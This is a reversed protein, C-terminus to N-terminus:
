PGAAIPTDPLQAPDTGAGEGASGTLDTPRLLFSNLMPNLRYILLSQLGYQLHPEDSPVFIVSRADVIRWGASDRMREVRARLDHTEGVYLVHSSNSLVYVGGRDLTSSDGGGLPIPEPLARQFWKAFKTTALEKAKNARKRVSLAAWRYEFSTHGPAFQRAVADFVTAIEPDCLIDDIKVGYDTGLSQMAIEGAFSYADM